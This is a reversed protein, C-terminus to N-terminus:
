KRSQFSVVPVYKGGRREVRFSTEGIEDENKSGFAALEKTLLDEELEAPFFAAIANPVPRIGLATALSTVSHSKDDIWFIRNLEYPDEIKGRVPRQSLDRYLTWGKDPDEVGLIAGLGQLQKAYDQGSQTNFIM